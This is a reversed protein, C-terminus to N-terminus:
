YGRTHNEVIMEGNSIKEVRDVWMTIFGVFLIVGLVVKISNKLKM